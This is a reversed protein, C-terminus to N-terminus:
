LPRSLGNSSWSTSATLIELFDASCTSLTRLGVCHLYTQYWNRNSASDVEPGHHLWFSTLSFDWHDWQSDFGYGEQKYRLAAVMVHGRHRKLLVLYRPLCHKLSANYLLIFCVSTLLTYCNKYLYVFPFQTYM